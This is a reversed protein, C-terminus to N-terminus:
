GLWAPQEHQGEEQKEAARYAFRKHRRSRKSKYGDRRRKARKHRTNTSSM